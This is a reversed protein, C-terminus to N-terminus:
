DREADSGYTYQYSYDSSDMNLKTMIAGFVTARAQYLRDLSSQIAGSKAGGAELIYVVGEVVQAILLGDAFGLLPPGDIIVHDYRKSLYSVLMSLREGSLLDSPNPPIPGAYFMDWDGIPSPKIHADVENDGALYSSLGHVNEGGFMRHISPNRMDADILVARRGLKAISHCLAMASTSKGESQRTSTVTFAKPIGHETALSLNTRANLYAESQVSKVDELAEIPDGDLEPIAGLIPLNLADRADEPTKLTQDIQELALVTLGSLVSGVLTALLMNLLLNPSSPGRPIEARDVIAISSVGVGAVGIEKYRQLLADYLQRNTDADRQFINYQIRDSQQQLLQEKVDQLQAQLARERQLAQEYNTASVQTVRREGSAIASDLEDIQSKLARADPYEPEFRTLLNAYEAALEARRQRLSNLASNEVVARSPGASMESRAAIRAATARGLENNLAELEASILSRESTANGEGDRESSVNIIERQRAYTVLQRESDELRSRLDALRQELFERAGSTSAFRRDQNSAIFEDAWSNAIRYSLEPDPSEFEIDVLGSGRLPEVQLQSLLLNATRRRLEANDVENGNEDAVNLDFASLFVPDSTLNLRRTVRDALSRSRLLGYQTQYFEATEGADEPQVAEVNAVNQQQRSIEITATATFQREALSTALFGLILCAIMIVAIVLKHRQFARWYNLLLPTKSGQAVTEQSSFLESRDVLSADNYTM